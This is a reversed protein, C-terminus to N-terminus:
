TPTAKDKSRKVSLVVLLIGVGGLIFNGISVHTYKELISIRPFAKLYRVAAPGKAVGSNYSTGVVTAGGEIRRGDPLIFYYGVGYNYQNRITEDREGGQRRVDTIVGMTRTGFFKLMPAGVAYTVLLLGIFGLFLKAAIKKM